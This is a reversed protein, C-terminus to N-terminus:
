QRHRRFEAKGSKRSRPLHGHQHRERRLGYRAPGLWRRRHLHRRRRDAILTDDGAGGDLTNKSGNGKLGDNFKSGRLNEIDVYTDGFAEGLNNLTDFLDAWVSAAAFQYTATDSGIGGDFADKGLGGSLVNNGTNGKLVDDFASGILGEIGTYTDGKASGTNNAAATPRTSRCQSRRDPRALDEQYSAFDETGPGFTDGGDLRDKGGRGVLIDNGQAGNLRNGGANGFLMDDFNSGLLAEISKYTDGAANSTNKTPDALDVIIGSTMTPTSFYAAEDFGDGGDLM